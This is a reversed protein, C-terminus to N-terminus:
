PKQPVARPSPPMRHEQEMRQRRDQMVAEREQVRAGIKARQEPTLVAAIDLMAQLVRRSSQDQQTQMEQRLAEAAGPDVTPATFVQLGRDRLGRGADRQRGLDAGAAVVIQRIQARQAPTVGLGDLMSDIRRAMPEADGGFFMGPGPPGGHDGRPQATASLVTATSAVVLM